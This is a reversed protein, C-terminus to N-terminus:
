QQLIHSLEPCCPVRDPDVVTVLMPDRPKSVNEHLAFSRTYFHSSFKALFVIIEKRDSASRALTNVLDQTNCSLNYKPANM